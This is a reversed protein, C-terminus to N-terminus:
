FTHYGTVYEGMVEEQLLVGFKLHGLGLNTFAHLEHLLRGIVEERTGAVPLLYPVSIAQQKTDSHSQITEDQNVPNRHSFSTM